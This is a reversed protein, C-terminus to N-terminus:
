LVMREIPVVLIGTAGISKMIAIVGNVEDENAVAHVAVLDDRGMINMITPGSVGPLLTGLSSLKDKPVNAMLYRKRSANMVSEIASTIEEIRIRKDRLAGPNAVLVARSELVVGVEKLHNLKLTSGTETLDTIVDALGIQPAVETAGSVEAIKITKGMKSFYERTLNPFTTAVTCGDVVDEVSGVPSEDPVAVVLRCAGFDLDMVKDIARGTELVLDLGTIGLDAAGMEVFEPIDQARAMLVQYKGKGFEALLTRSNTDPMSFGIRNMLKIASQNLRGKNPLAIRLTNM